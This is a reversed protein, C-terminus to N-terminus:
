PSEGAEPRTGSSHLTLSFTHNCSRVGRKRGTLEAILEGSTKPEGSAKSLSPNENRFLKSLFSM